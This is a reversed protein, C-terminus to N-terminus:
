KKIFSIEWLGLSDTRENKTGTRLLGEAPKIVQKVIMSDDDAMEFKEIVPIDAKSHILYITNTDAVQRAGSLQEISPVYLRANPKDIISMSMLSPLWIKKDPYKAAETKTYALINMFVNRYAQNDYLQYVPIGFCLFMGALMACGYIFRFWNTVPFQKKLSLRWFIFHFLYPFYYSRMFLMLLGICALLYIIEKLRKGTKTQLINYFTLVAFPISYFYFKFPYGPDIHRTDNEFGRHFFNLQWLQVDYLIVPGYLLGVAIGTGSLFLFVRTFKINHQLAYVCIFFVAYFGGVPHSLGIVATVLCILLTYKGKSRNGDLLLQLWFLFPLLFIEPRLSYTYTSLVFAFAFLLFKTGGDPGGSLIKYALFLSLCIWLINLFFISYVLLETNTFLFYFPANLLCGMYPLNYFGMYSHAFSSEFFHGRLISFTQSLAWPGDTNPLPFYIFLALKAFVLVVLLFLNARYRSTALSNAM